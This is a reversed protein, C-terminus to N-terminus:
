FTMTQLQEKSIMSERAGKDRTASRTPKFDAFEPSTQSASSTADLMSWMNPSTCAYLNQRAPASTKFVMEGIRCTSPLTVATKFPVTYSAASFDVSKSQTKLDVM